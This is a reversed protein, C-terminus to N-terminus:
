RLGVQWTKNHQQVKLAKCSKLFSPYKQNGALKKIVATIPQQYVQYFQTGLVSIDVWGSPTAKSLPKLLEVIAQELEAVVTPLPSLSQQPSQNALDSKAQVVVTQNQGNQEPLAVGSNAPQSPLEFLTIYLEPQESPQHVVFDTPRDIFLDRAKKGPCYVAMM